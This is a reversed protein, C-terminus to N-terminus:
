FQLKLGLQVALPNQYQNPTGFTPNKVVPNGDADKANQLDAPTGNLIPGNVVSYSYVQNVSTVARFDFLNYISVMASFVNSEGIKHSYRLLLDVDHIWPLRPGSGRPLLYVTAQGYLNYAISDFGSYDTPGGSLATYAVGINFDSVGNIPLDYSGFLKINHTHDGPLPGSANSNLWQKLDGTATINPDLQSVTGGQDAFLGQYNGALRSLTYSAQIQWRHSLAKTFYLTAADYNRELKPFDTAAGQGPNALIFTNGNDTSLDEIVNNMTRHTYSVGLRGDPIIEYEGGAVIETSSQGKLNPDVPTNSGGYPSWVRNIGSSGAEGATSAPDACGGPANPNPTKLPNCDHYAYVQTNPPFERDLLDIPMQEYYVAYNAFLKSRGQQTPDYILGIRPQWNNPLSVVHKGDGGYLQQDEWRVGANLTFLDFVRYSDQIYGALETSRTINHANPQFVPDDPGALYGFRRADVWVNPAVESYEVGGPYAILDDYQETLFDVGYKLEHHGGLQFLNTASARAQYTDEKITQLLYQSGIAYGGILPCTQYTQAADGAGCWQAAQPEFEVLSHQLGPPQYGFLYEPEDVLSPDEPAKNQYQHHWALTANTLMHKDFFSGDWHLTYDNTNVDRIGAFSSQTGALSTPFLPDVDPGTTTSPNGWVSASFRQDQNLLYTLKAIYQYQFTNQTYKRLSSSVPTTAAIVPSGTPDTAVGRSSAACGTLSADYGAFDPDASSAVPNGAGDSPCGKAYSVVNVYRNYDIKDITPQLGVYFWLKDKIIPGGVEMTLTSNLSNSRAETIADGSPIVLKEPATLFGPTAYLSISGHFENGGSKTVVNAVGGTAHGYEAMYGGTIVDVEKIFDVSVQSQLLGYAPSNTIVGDIVYSNEPSTTGAISIGYDDGSAGPATAQLSEFSRVRGGAKNIGAVPVNNIFDDTITTGTQTTGVDVTPAKGVVVIEEAQVNEPVLPLNVRIVKDLRVMIGPQNLPKYNEAELHLLYTGPPLTPIEFEGSSDTLVTQEGQLAPSTATVVVDPLAKQTAADVVKGQIRGTAQAFAASSVLLAASFVAWQMAARIRPNARTM